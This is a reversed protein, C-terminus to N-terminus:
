KAFNPTTTSWSCVLVNHVLRILRATVKCVVLQLM